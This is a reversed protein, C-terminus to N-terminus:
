RGILKRLTRLNVADLDEGNEKGKPTELYMPTEQFRPDRLLHRFPDLGMRGRGIHAHRDVRSGLERASDNLHFARVRGLGVARDLAEMTSWYEEATGLPFGAAFVHCTDFCVGLREPDKAGELIAALEEFRWGLSTGQGATTELLCQAQIGATEQHITDLARAIRRLGAKPPGHIYCGPHTVVYRLGLMEARRLEIALAKVSRKWLGADPSALNILYSDHAIPFVIRSREIARRFSAAAAATIPRASWQNNNKSFIQLCDCGCQCARQVAKDIGGAISMHAGLIPM